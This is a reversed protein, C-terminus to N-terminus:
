VDRGSETDTETETKRDRFVEVQRGLYPLGILLLSYYCILRWLLMAWFIGESGIESFVLYFAGESVGSNGPTPILTIAAYIYVTMCLLRLYSAPCGLARLVFPISCLAFRCLVSLAVLGASLSKKQAILIFGDQYQTLTDIVKKLTEDYDKILRLKAGLKLIWALLTKIAKPHLSFAIETCPPIACFFLGAYATFRITDPVIRPWFVFVILALVVASLQRTIFSVWFAFVILALVVASLQRTIFSVAPIVAAERASYGNLHLWYMQLPQGGGGTPTISDYYKGLAVTEFAARFTMKKDLFRGTFLLKLTETLFIVGQCGLAALLYFVGYEGLSFSAPRSKVHFERYATWAIVAINLAVFLLMWLIHKKGTKGSNNIGM